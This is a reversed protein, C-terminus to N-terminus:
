ARGVFSLRLAAKAVAAQGAFVDRVRETIKVSVGDYRSEHFALFADADVSKGTEEGPLVPRMACRCRADESLEGFAGPHLARGGRPSQFKDKTPVTQKNMARHSDRVVQDQSTLWMKREFGGQEAADQSAFGTLKTAMTDGIMPARMKAADEFVADVRALLATLGESKAAGEVLAAALEKKTTEDIFGLLEPVTEALWNAAKVTSAFSVDVSLEELLESGYKALLKGLIDDLIRSVEARVQPDEHAASVQVIKEPSITREITPTELAKDDKPAPKKGKPPEPDPEDDDDPSANPDIPEPDLAGPENFEAEERERLGAANRFENGTFAAPKLAMVKIRRDFDDPVPNEYRLVLDGLDFFELAFPELVDVLFTLRPDLTHKGFLFDASDITARNSNELRGLIEPPVGFIESIIAKEMERIASTENDRLGRGVEKVELPQSSFFPRGNRKFGRFKEMWSTELRSADVPNLPREKSGSVLLDPRTHNKFFSYLFEAAAEDTKVETWAAETVGAGREYPDFPDPDRFAIVDAEPITFPVGNIPQIQYYPKSPAPLDTVWNPPIPAWQVPQGNAARGVAAFAEGALDIHLQITKIAQRGRLKKSGARVFDLFPHKTVKEGKADEFYFAHRAVGQAVKSTIARVWPSQRYLKLLDATNSRPPTFVETATLLEVFRSTEPSAKPKKAKTFRSLISGSLM